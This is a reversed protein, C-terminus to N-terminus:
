ASGDHQKQNPREIGTFGLIEESQVKPRCITHWEGLKVRMCSGGNDHPSFRWVALTTIIM